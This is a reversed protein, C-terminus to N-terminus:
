SGYSRARSGMCTYHGGVSEEAGRVSVSVTCCNGDDIDRGDDMEIM